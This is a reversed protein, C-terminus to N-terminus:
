KIRSQVLPYLPNKQGESPPNAAIAKAIVNDMYKVAEDLTKEGSLYAHWGNPLENRIEEGASIRWPVLADSLSKEMSAYISNKVVDKKWFSLRPHTIGYENFVKMVIEHSNYFKIFEWCLDQETSKKNIGISWASLATFGAKDKPFPVCAWNNGIKNADSNQYPVVFCAQPWGELFVAHGAAFAAGAEPLGWNLSAPDSLEIVKKSIELARRGEPTNWNPKWNEDAGEGGMSWLRTNLVSGYQSKAAAPAIGYMGKAPDYFKEAIAIYEDWTTPPSAVLDTRYCLQLPGCAHPIGHIVGNWSGCNYLINQDFDNIDYNDRAILPDLETLFPAMYGDWQAAVHVIDYAAKGGGTFDLMLKEPMTSYPFDVVQVKAGTLKEFEAIVFKRTSDAYAGSMFMATITKGSFDKPAPEAPKVSAATNASASTAPATSSPASSETPSQSGACGGMLAVVLLVAMVYALLKFKM